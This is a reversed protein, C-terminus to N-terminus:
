NLSGFARVYNKNSKADNRPYYDSLDWTWANNLSYQTSTWYYDDTELPVGGILSMCADIESKNDRVETWEGCSGLYGKKGNLFTYSRCYNAAESAEGDQAIIQDTNSNGAYDAKAPNLYITTVIDSITKNLNGWTKIQLSEEKAIVFGGDPHSNSIVAVGNAQENPLSWEDYSYFKGDISQIYIGSIINQYVLTRGAYAKKIENGGLFLKSVVTNNIILKGM